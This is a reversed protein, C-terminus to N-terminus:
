NEGENRDGTHIRLTKGCNPCKYPEYRVKRGAEAYGEPADDWFPEHIGDKLYFGVSFQKGPPLIWLWYIDAMDILRSEAPYIEMGEAEAGAIQTKIQQRHHFPLDRAKLPSVKLCRANGAEDRYVAVEYLDNRWVEHGNVNMIHQLPPLDSKAAWMDATSVQRHAKQTAEKDSMGDALNREYLMEWAARYEEGTLNM